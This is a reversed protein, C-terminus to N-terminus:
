EDEDAFLLISKSVAETRDFTICFVAGTHRHGVGAGIVEEGTGAVKPCDASAESEEDICVEVDMRCLPHVESESEQEDVESVVVEDQIIEPLIAKSHRLHPAQQRQSPATLSMPSSGSLIAAKRPMSTPTKMSLCVEIVGSRCCRESNLLGSPLQSYRPFSPHIIFGTLGNCHLSNGSFHFKGPQSISHAAPLIKFCFM